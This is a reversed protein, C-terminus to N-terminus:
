KNNEILFEVIDNLLKTILEDITEYDYNHVKDFQLTITDNQIKSVYSESISGDSITDYQKCLESLKVDFEEKIKYFVDDNLDICQNYYIRGTEYDHLEINM